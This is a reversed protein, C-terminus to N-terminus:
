ALLGAKLEDLTARPLKDFIDILAQAPGTPKRRGQEWNQLTRLSVRMLKAMEKQSLGAKARIYRVGNPEVVFVRSPAMEGKSIAVAEKMSQILGEFLEEDM